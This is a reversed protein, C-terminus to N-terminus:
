RVHSKPKERYESVYTPSSEMESFMPNSLIALRPTSASPTYKGDAPIVNIEIYEDTCNSNSTLYGKSSAKKEITVAKMKIYEKEIRVNQLKNIELKRKRRKFLVVLFVFGLIIFVLIIVVAVVIIVAIITAGDSLPTSAPM